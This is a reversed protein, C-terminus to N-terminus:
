AAMNFLRAYRQAADAPEVPGPNNPDIVTSGPERPTEQATAQAPAEGVASAQQSNMVSVESQVSAQAVQQGTTPTSSAMTANPASSSQADQAGTEALPRPAEGGAGILPAPDVRQGDRITEFHLHPGTSRGTNGSLAIQQGREVQQGQQVGISSLHAYLTETGDNGRVRVMNGYSPSARVEIVTGSQSSVIPSGVPVGFDMGQHNGMARQGFGSTVQGATPRMLPGGESSGSAPPPPAAMTAGSAGGGSSGMSMTSGGAQDFEFRDAKFTIEKARVNLIRNNFLDAQDQQSMASGSQRTAQATLERPAPLASVAPERAAPTANSQASANAAQLRPASSPEQPTGAPTEGASPTPDSSRTAAYAAAGAATLGGVVLGGALIRRAISAGSRAAGQGAAPGSGSSRARPGPVNPAPININPLGSGPALGQGTNVVELIQQLLMNSRAQSEAINSLFVSSRSVQQSHEQMSTNVELSGREQRNLRDHIVSMFRGLTPFMRNFLSSGVGLIGKAAGSALNKFTSSSSSQQSESGAAAPAIKQVEGKNDVVVISDSPEIKKKTPLKKKPKKPKEMSSAYQVRTKKEINAMYEELEDGSMYKSQIQRVEGLYEAVDAETFKGTRTYRERRAEATPIPQLINKPDAM